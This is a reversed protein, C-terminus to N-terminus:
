WLDSHSRGKWGAESLFPVLIIRCLLVFSLTKFYCGYIIQSGVSRSIEAPNGWAGSIWSQKQIQGWPNSPKNVHHSLLTGFSGTPPCLRQLGPSLVPMIDGRECETPRLLNCAWGLTLPFPFLSWRKIPLAVFDCQLPLPIITAM